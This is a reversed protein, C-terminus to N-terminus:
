KNMVPSVVLFDQRELIMITVCAAREVICKVAVEFGADFEFRPLCFGGDEGRFNFDHQKVTTSNMRHQVRSVASQTMIDIQKRTTMAPPPRSWRVIFSFKNVHTQLAGNHKNRQSDTTTRFAEATSRRDPLCLSTDITLRVSANTSRPAASASSPGNTSASTSSSPPTASSTGNGRGATRILFEAASVADEGYQLHPAKISYTGLECVDDGARCFSLIKESPVTGISLNRQPDGFQVIAAVNESPLTRSPPKCVAGRQVGELYLYPLRGNAYAFLRRKPPALCM